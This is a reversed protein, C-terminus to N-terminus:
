IRALPHLDAYPLRREFRLGVCWGRDAAVAWIVVAPAKAPRRQAPGEFHVEVEQGVPLEGKVVLCAGAESVDLLSLAVNEGLGMLGKFCRVKTGGKPTRRCSTRRNHAANATQNM